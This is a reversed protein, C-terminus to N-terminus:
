KNEYGDKGQHANSRIIHCSIYYMVLGKYFSFCKNIKNEKAICSTSTTIAKNLKKIMSKEILAIWSYGFFCHSQLLLLLIQTHGYCFNTINLHYHPDPHNHLFNYFQM